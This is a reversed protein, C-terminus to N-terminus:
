VDAHSQGFAEQEAEIRALGEQHRRDARAASEPFFQRLVTEGIDHILGAIFADESPYRDKRAQALAQAWLSTLVSHTWIRKMENKDTGQFRDLVASALAVNRLGRIGIRHIADTASSIKRAGGLAASNVIRLLQVTLNPDATVVKAVERTQCNPDDTMALVRQVVAPLTGVSKIRRLVARVEDPATRDAEPAAPAAPQSPRNRDALFRRLNEMLAPLQSAPVIEAFVLTQLFLDSPNKQLALVDQVQSDTMAGTRVAAEGFRVRDEAQVGLVAFVQKLSLYGKLLALQGFRRDLKAHLSQVRLLQEANVVGRQTLFESLIRQWAPISSVAQVIDRM